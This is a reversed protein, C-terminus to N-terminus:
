AMEEGILKMFEKENIIPVGLKRAKELKAPGMNEGALIFSTSSSVSSTVRAGHAEALAKIEERSRSFVGSLVIIKGELINSKKQQQAISMQIGAQKLRDIIRRNEVDQFYEVITRAIKEGVEEVQLLEEYTMSMLTEINRAYRALHAATTEGVYRIGLSFLVREFPVQKSDEISKLINRVTKDQFTVIRKKGTVPDEYVKELGILKDYTLDYFDAVSQVLGKEFLLEIREEGLTAINMAKRSVFHELRGKIQPPCNKENPCYYAAEDPQRILPTGCEPCKNPFEVPTVFLDRKSIEVGTIKPIIEGGKEVYVYDGIRVDLQAIIDANHLSARKVTTGSLFVPELNAVPTIVGTRGVYFDVSILRTLAQEPRYKYAIAWRPSKATFGLVQQQQLNDVKIVIGDIDFPLQKRREEWQKIYQFVEQVSPCRCVYENVLFGWERARMLNEYHSDSLYDALIQYTFFTLKRRAVDASNQLKLSGSAANRPNAFLPEGANERQKNLAEFAKRTMVVEGRVELLAPYDGGRLSLPVTKITKANETIDDGKVGDGRTVARVLVGNEYTLSLAVGDFKLECVYAVNDGVVRRVRQFFEGLESESYTNDLSLMPVRHEVQQFDKNVYGGVRQTPSDPLRYNWEDELHKLEALLRDFEYDSIEPKDLVYYLYNHRNLERTLFQIREIAQERTM